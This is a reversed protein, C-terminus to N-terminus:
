QSSIRGIDVHRTDCLKATAENYNCSITDRDTIELFKSSVFVYIYMYRKYAILFEIFIMFSSCHRAHNM